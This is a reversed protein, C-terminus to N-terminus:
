VHAQWKLDNAAMGGGFSTTSFLPRGREHGLAAAAGHKPFHREYVERCLQLVHDQAQVSLPRTGCAACPTMSGLLRLTTGCVPRRATSM